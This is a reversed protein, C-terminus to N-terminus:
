KFWIKFPNIDDSFNFGIKGTVKSSKTDSQALIWLVIYFNKTGTVCALVHIGDKIGHIYTFFRQFMKRYVEFVNILQLLSIQKLWIIIKNLHDELQLSERFIQKLIITETLYNSNSASRYACNLLVFHHESFM